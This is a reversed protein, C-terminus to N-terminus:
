PTLAPWPQAARRPRARPFAPETDIEPKCDHSRIHEDYEIRAELVDAKASEAESFARHYASKDFVYAADTLARVAKNFRTLRTEYLRLLNLRKECVHPM